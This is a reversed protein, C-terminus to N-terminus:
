DSAKKGPMGKRPMDGPKGTGTSGKTDRPSAWKLSPAPGGKAPMKGMAMKKHQNM